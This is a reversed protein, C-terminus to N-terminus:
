LKHKSCGILPDPRLNRSLKKIIGITHLNGLGGARRACNKQHMKDEKGFGATDNNWGNALDARRRFQHPYPWPLLFNISRNFVITM